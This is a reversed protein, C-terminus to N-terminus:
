NGELSHIIHGGRNERRDWGIRSSVREIDEVPVVLQKSDIVRRKKKKGGCSQCTAL